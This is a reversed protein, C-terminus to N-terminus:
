EMLFVSRATEVISEPTIALFYPSCPSGASVIFTESSESDVSETQFELALAVVIEALSETTALYAYQGWGMDIGIELCLIVDNSAVCSEVSGGTAFEVDVTPYALTESHAVATGYGYYLTSAVM